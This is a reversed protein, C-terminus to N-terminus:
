LIRFVREVEAVALFLHYLVRAPTVPATASGDRVVAGVLEASSPYTYAEDRAAPACTRSVVHRFRIRNRWKSPVPNERPENDGEDYGEPNVFTDFHVDLSLNKRTAYESPRLLRSYKPHRWKYFWAAALATYIAMDLALWVRAHRPPSLDSRLYLIWYPM